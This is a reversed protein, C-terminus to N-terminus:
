LGQRFIYAGDPAADMIISQGESVSGELLRRSLESLLGRQIARKVPRAGFEPDFGEEAIRSM